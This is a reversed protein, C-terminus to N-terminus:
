RQEPTHLAPLSPDRQQPQRCRPSRPDRPTRPAMKAASSDNILDGNAAVVRITGSSWARPLDRNDLTAQAMTAVEDTGAGAADPLVVYCSKYGRPRVADALYRFGVGVERATDAPDMYGPGWPVNATVIPPLYKIRRVTVHMREGSFPDPGAVTQIEFVSGSQTGTLPGLIADAHFERANDQSTVFAIHGTRRLLPRHAHWYRDGFPYLFQVIVKVPNRCGNVLMLVYVRYNEKRPLAGRQRLPERWSMALAPSFAINPPEEIKALDVAQRYAWLALAACIVIVLWDRIAYIRM